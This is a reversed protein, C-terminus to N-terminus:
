REIASQADMVANATMNLYGRVTILQSVIRAPRAAGLMIPGVSVGGGLQKLLNLSIKAADINPMVPM